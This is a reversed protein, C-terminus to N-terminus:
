RAPTIVGSQDPGFGAARVLSGLCLAASAVQAAPAAALLGCGCCCRHLSHRRGSRWHGVACAPRRQQVVDSSSTWSGRPRQLARQGPEAARDLQQHASHVQLDARRLILASFSRSRVFACKFQQTKLTAEIELGATFPVQLSCSFLPLVFAVLACVVACVEITMLDDAGQGSCEGRATTYLMFNRRPEDIQIKIDDFCCCSDRVCAGQVRWQGEFSASCCAACVLFRKHPSGVSVSLGPM